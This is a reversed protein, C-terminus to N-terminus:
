RIAGQPPLWGDAGELLCPLLRPCPVVTSAAGPMARGAVTAGFVACAAICTQTAEGQLTSHNPDLQNSWGELVMTTVVAGALAPCGLTELLM